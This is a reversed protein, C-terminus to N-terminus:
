SNTYIELERNNYICYMALLLSLVILVIFVVVKGVCTMTILYNFLWSIRFVTVM